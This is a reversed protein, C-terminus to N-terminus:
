KKQKRAAAVRQTRSAALWKDYLEPKLKNRLIKRIEPSTHIERLIAADLIALQKHDLALLEEITFLHNLCTM